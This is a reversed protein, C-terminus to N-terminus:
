LIVPYCKLSITTPWMPWGSHTLPKKTEREHTKIKKIKCNYCQPQGIDCIDGVM